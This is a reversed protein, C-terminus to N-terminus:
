PFFTPIRVSLRTEYGIKMKVYTQDKRLFESRYLDRNMDWQFLYYM